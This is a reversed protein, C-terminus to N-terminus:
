PPAGFPTAGSPTAGSAMTAASATGADGVVSRAPWGRMAHERLPGCSEGIWAALRGAADELRFRQEVTERAAAGLGARLAPDDLLDALVRALSWPDGERVLLGNRGPAVAEPIGGVPTCVVPLGAAMAELLAVPIGDHDTGDSVVCPLAFVAARGLAEAVGARSAEGELTVRGTLGLEHVRAALVPRLPGDGLVRVRFERGTRALEAAADLLVALGKKPVLRAVALIEPPAGPAPRLSIARLREVDVGLYGLRVRDRHEPHPSLARLRWATELSIARAFACEALLRGVWPRPRQVDYAHGTFSFPIGALDGVAWATWAPFGAFSGHVHRWGESRARRALGAALAVLRLPVGEARGLRGVRAVRMPAAAGDRAARVAWGALGARPYLVPGGFAQEWRQGSAPRFVSAVAVDLGLRRLAAVEEFVFSADNEVLVGVKRASM